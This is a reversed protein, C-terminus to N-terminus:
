LMSLHPLPFTEKCYRKYLDINLEHDFAIQEAPPLSNLDFWAVEDSEDDAEGEKVLATCFFVFSINQKDEHPRDPNDRITLLAIDKIKYGTEEFIEREVAQHLNEDREVYGGVLGWKGGELLKKARKVLLIKNEKLVLVDVVVHRLSANGGNEFQCHIM